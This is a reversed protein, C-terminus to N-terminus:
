PQLAESIERLINRAIGKWRFTMMEPVEFPKRHEYDQPNRLKSRRPGKMEVERDTILRELGAYDENEILLAANKCFRTESLRPSAFDLIEEIQRPAFDAAYRRHFTKFEEALDKAEEIAEVRRDYLMAYFLRLLYAFRSFRLSLTYIRFNRDSVIGTLMKELDEFELSNITHYIGSDLMEGMLSSTVAKIIRNKLFLAEERDLAIDIKDSTEFRYDKGFTEFLPTIGDLDDSDEAEETHLKSPLGQRMKSRDALVAYINGSTKSLGLTELGVQYVYAPDYKVYQQHNSLSDAGIIGGSNNGSGEVLRRTLRIEYERVIARAEKPNSIRKKELHSYLAPLLVFYKARTQLVSLGPFMSNSFVDRIRGLGLEDIAGQGQLMKMVKAARNLAEQNFNIFGLEM